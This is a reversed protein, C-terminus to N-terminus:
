ELLIRRDVTDRGPIVLAIVMGALIRGEEVSYLGHRSQTPVHLSM